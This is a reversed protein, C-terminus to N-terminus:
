CTLLLARPESRLDDLWRPGLGSSPPEAIWGCRLGEERPGAVCVASGLASGLKTQIVGSSM